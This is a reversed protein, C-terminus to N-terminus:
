PRERVLDATNGVAAMHQVGAACSLRCVSNRRCIGSRLMTVNPYFRGYGLDEM